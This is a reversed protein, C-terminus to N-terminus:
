SVVLPRADFPRGGDAALPCGGITFQSTTPSLQRSAFIWKPSNAPSTSRPQFRKVLQDSAIQPRCKLDLSWETL